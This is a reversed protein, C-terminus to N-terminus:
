KLPVSELARWAPLWEHFGGDETPRVARLIVNGDACNWLIRDGDLVVAHGKVVDDREMLGLYAPNVGFCEGANTQFVQLGRFLIPAMDAQVSKESGSWKRIEERIADDMVTQPDEKTTVLLIDGPTPIRGTHEVLLALMPRSVCGMDLHAYWDYTFLVLGTEDAKLMYGGKKAANKMAKLLSKENIAM